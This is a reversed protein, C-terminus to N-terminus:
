KCIKVALGAWKGSHYSFLKVDGKRSKPHQGFDQAYKDQCEVGGTGTGGSNVSELASYLEFVQSGRKSKEMERRAAAM